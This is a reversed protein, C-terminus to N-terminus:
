PSGHSDKGAPSVWRKMDVLFNSWAVKMNTLLKDCDRTSDMVAVYLTTIFM